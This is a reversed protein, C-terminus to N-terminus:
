NFRLLSIRSPLSEVLYPDRIEGGGVCGASSWGSPRRQLRTGEVLVPTLTPPPAGSSPPPSSDPEKPRQATWFAQFPNTVRDFDILFSVSPSSGGGGVVGLLSLLGPTHAEM